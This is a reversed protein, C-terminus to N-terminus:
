HTDENRKAANAVASSIVAFIAAVIAALAFITTAVDPRREFLQVIALLVILVFLMAVGWEMGRIASERYTPYTGLRALYMIFSGFFVLLTATLYLGVFVNFLNIIQVITM